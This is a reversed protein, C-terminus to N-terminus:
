LGENPNVEPAPVCSDTGISGLSSISNDIGIESATGISGLESVDHDIGIQSTNAAAAESEISIDGEEMVGSQCYSNVNNLFSSTTSEFGISPVTSSGKSSSSYEVLSPAGSNNRNQTSARQTSSGPDLSSDLTSCRPRKAIPSPLNKSEMTRKRFFALLNTQAAKPNPNARPKLKVNTDLARKKVSLMLEEEHKNAKELIEIEKKKEWENPEITIRAIKYGKRESKSNCSASSLIRIAEHIMRSMPDKHSKVVRFHFEPPAPLESHAVAWHKFLFNAPDFRSLGQLHESAREFLTRSSQGVYRGKHKM